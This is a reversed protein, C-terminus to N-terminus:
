VLALSKITNYGAIGDVVLGHRAQWDKVAAETKRGYIGDANCGLRLQIWTTLDTNHYETGSNAAFHSNRLAGDTEPGWINDVTVCLIRQLEAIKGSVQQTSNNNVPQSYGNTPADLMISPYFINSDCPQGGHYENESYQHGCITAFGTNLFNGARSGYQAVWLPYRNKIDNDFSDRAYYASAYICCIGTKGMLQEFRNIFRRVTNSYDVLQVEMDLCYKLDAKKDKVANYFDEAQGEINTNKTLFHYYGVPVGSNVVQNYFDDLCPDVYGQGETAKLYLHVLGEDKLKKINIGRRHNSIDLSFM